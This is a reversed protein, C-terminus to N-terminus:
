AHRADRKGRRRRGTAGERQRQGDLDPSRGDAGSRPRRRPGGLAPRREDAGGPRRSLGVLEVEPSLGQLDPAVRQEIRLGTFDAFRECLVALASELGLEDLAEPRLEIAIQRVEELSNRVAEQVESVERRLEPQIRAEVRALGLLM